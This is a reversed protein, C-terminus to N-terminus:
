LYMSRVNDIHTPDFIDFVIRDDDFLLYNWHTSSVFADQQTTYIQNLIGMRQIPQKMTKHNQPFGYFLSVMSGYFLGITWSKRDFCIDLFCINGKERGFFPWNGGFISLQSCEYHRWAM